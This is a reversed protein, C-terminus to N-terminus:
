AEHHDGKSHQSLQKQEIHKRGETINAEIKIVNKQLKTVLLQLRSLIGDAYENAEQKMKFAMKKADIVETPDVDVEDVQDYYQHVVQKQKEEYEDLSDKLKDILVFLQKPDVLLQESFMKKKSSKFLAELSFIIGKINDLNDMNDM